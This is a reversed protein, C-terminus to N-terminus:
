PIINQADAERCTRNRGGRGDEGETGGKNDRSLSVTSCASPFDAVPYASVACRQTKFPTDM